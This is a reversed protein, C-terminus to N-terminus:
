NIKKLIKKMLVVRLLFGRELPALVQVALQSSLLPSLDPNPIHSIFGFLTGFASKLGLGLCSGSPNYEVLRETPLPSARSCSSSRGNCGGSSPPHLSQALFGNKQMTKNKRKSSVRALSSFDIFNAFVVKTRPPTSTPSPSIFGYQVPSCSRSHVRPTRSAFAHCNTQFRFDGQTSSKNREEWILYVLVCFSVRRMRAEYNKNKSPLGLVAINLTSM